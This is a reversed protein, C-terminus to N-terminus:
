RARDLRARATTATTPSLLSDPDRRIGRHGPEIRDMSLPAVDDQGRLGRRPAEGRPQLLLRELPCIRGAAHATHFLEPRQLASPALEATRLECTCM